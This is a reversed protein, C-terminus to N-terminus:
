PMMEPLGFATLTFEEEPITRTSLDNVELTITSDPIGEMRLKRRQSKLVPSGGAPSTLDNHQSWHQTLGDSCEVDVDCDQVTWGLDPNLTVTGRSLWRFPKEGNPLVCEFSVSVLETTGQRRSKVEKIVFPEKGFFEPFYMPGVSLQPKSFVNASLMEFIKEIDANPTRGFRQVLWPLKSSARRLQFSYRANRCFVDERAATGDPEFYTLIVLCNEGSLKIHRDTRGHVNGRESRDTATMELHEAWTSIKAWAQPAETLLRARLQDDGNGTLPRGILVAFSVTLALVRRRNRGGLQKM